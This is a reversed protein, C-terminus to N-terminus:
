NYVEKEWSPTVFYSKLGQEKCNSKLLPTWKALEDSSLYQDGIFKLVTEGNLVKRGTGVFDYSAGDQTFCAGDAASMNNFIYSARLSRVTFGADDVSSALKEINVPQGKKFEVKMTTARLDVTVEKVFPLRRISMEVSRACMSCTLGDVGLEASTFQSHARLSVLLLAGLLISKM